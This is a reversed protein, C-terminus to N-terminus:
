AANRLQKMSRDHRQRSREASIGLAYGIAHFSNEFGDSLGYRLRVIERDTESKVRQLLWECDERMARSTFGYDAEYVTDAPILSWKDEEYEDDSIYDDYYEHSMGHELEALYAHYIAYYIYPFAFSKFSGKAANFNDMANLLGIAGEQELDERCNTAPCDHKRELHRIIRYFFPRCEAYAQDFPMSHAKTDSLNIVTNTM